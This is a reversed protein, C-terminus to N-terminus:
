SPPPLHVHTYAHLYVCVRVWVYVDMCVCVCIYCACEGVWRDMCVGVYIYVCGYVWVGGWVCWFSHGCPTVVVPDRLVDTCESCTVVDVDRPTMSPTDASIGPIFLHLPLLSHYIRCSLSPSICGHTVVHCHSSVPTLYTAGGLSWGEGAMSLCGDM